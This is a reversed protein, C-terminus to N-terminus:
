SGLVAEPLAPLRIGLRQTPADIARHALHRIWLAPGQALGMLKVPLSLHSNLHGGQTTGSASKCVGKCNSAMDSSDSTLIVPTGDSLTCKGYDQQCRQKANKGDSEGSPTDTGNQMGTCTRCSAGASSCLYILGDSKPYTGKDQGKYYSMGSM